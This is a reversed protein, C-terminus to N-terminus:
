KITISKEYTFLQLMTVSYPLMMRFLPTVVAAAVVAEVVAKVVAEVVVTVVVVGDDSYLFASLSSHTSCHQRKM